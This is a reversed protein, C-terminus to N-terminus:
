LERVGMRYLTDEYYSQPEDDQYYGNLWKVCVITNKIDEIYRKDTVVGCINEKSTVSVTSSGKVLTGINFM